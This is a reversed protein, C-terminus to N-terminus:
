AWAGDMCGFFMSGIAAGVALEKESAESGKINWVVWTGAVVEPKSGEEIGRDVFGCFDLYAQYDQSDWENLVIAVAKETAPVEDEPIYRYALYMGTGVAAVTGFFDWTAAGRAQLLDKM